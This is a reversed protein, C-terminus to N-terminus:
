YTMWLGTKLLFYYGTSFYDEHVNMQFAQMALQMCLLALQMCLLLGLHTKVNWVRKKDDVPTMTWTEVTV